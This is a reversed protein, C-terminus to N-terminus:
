QEGDGELPTPTPAPSALDGAEARWAADAAAPDGGIWTAVVLFLFGFVAGIVIAPIIPSHLMVTLLGVGVAAM